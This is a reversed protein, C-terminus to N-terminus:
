EKILKLTEGKDTVVFYLGKAWDETNISKSSLAEVKMESIIQGTISYLSLFQIDKNKNEITFFTSAPNPYISINTGPIISEVSSNGGSNDVRNIVAFNTRIPTNYDFYIHANNMISDGINLSKFLKADFVLYGKSG